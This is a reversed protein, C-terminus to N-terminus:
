AAKFFGAPLRSKLERGAALGLARAQDAPGSIHTKEVQQGDPSAVLGDMTLVGNEITALAAIPTKCSGDLMELFGREAAICQSTIPCNILSLQEKLAADSVRVEIGLAGQAVAPLMVDATLTTTINESLKLRDLGAVALLTADVQGAALKELRTGVNGRFPVVKLDPRRALVLAQRRLSATGVVSGAPLEDLTKAKHSIFADFPNARPLTACIELGEPLYTPMDKMSHVAMDIRNELLADEIEKTWLGKNGADSIPRDGVQTADGSTKIIVLEIAGTHRLAPCLEIMRAKVMEAQCLALPSGRTGIRIPLRNKLQQHDM